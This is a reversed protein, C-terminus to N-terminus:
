LARRTQYIRVYLVKKVVEDGGFAGSLKAGM